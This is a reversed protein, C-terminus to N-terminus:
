TAGPRLNLDVVTASRPLALASLTMASVDEPRIFDEARYPGGEYTRVKQQMPTATRGPYVTMVRVGEAKVEDRLADALAKLGHKSAAYAGWQGKATLGAGSNIFAIQGRAKIVAPLLAQTLLFPARLNVRYNEDLDEARVDQIRGLAVVGACHILGDLPEIRGNLTELLRGSSAEDNFDAAFWEVKRGQALWPQAVARLRDLSRGTLILDAGETALQAALVHGIGSTAGTVFYTKGAFRSTNM